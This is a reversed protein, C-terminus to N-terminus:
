LNHKFHKIWLIFNPCFLTNVLGNDLRGKYVKGFGGEGILQTERFYKTAIALERFTFSLASYASIRDVVKSKDDLSM